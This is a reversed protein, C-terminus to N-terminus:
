PLASAAVDMVIRNADSDLRLTFNQDIRFVTIPDDATPANFAGCLEKWVEAANMKPNDDVAWFDILVPMHTPM